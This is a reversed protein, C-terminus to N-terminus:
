LWESLLETNVEGHKASLSLAEVLCAIDDLDFLCGSSNSLLNPFDTTKHIIPSSGVLMMKTFFDAPVRLPHKKQKNSKQPSLQKYILKWRAAPYKDLFM